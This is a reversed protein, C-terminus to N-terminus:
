PPCAGTTDEKGLDQVKRRGRTKTSPNSDTEHFLQGVKVAKPLFDDQSDREPSWKGSNIEVALTPLPVKLVSSM